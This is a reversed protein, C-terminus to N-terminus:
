ANMVSQPERDTLECALFFNAQHLEQILENFTLGNVCFHQIQTLVALKTIMEEFFDNEKESIKFYRIFQSLTLIHMTKRTNNKNEQANLALKNDSNDDSEMSSHYSEDLNMTLNGSFMKFIEWLQNYVNGDEDLTELIRRSDTLADRVIELYNQPDEWNEDDSEQDDASSLEVGKLREKSKKHNKPQHKVDQYVLDEEMLEFFKRYNGAPSLDTSLFDAIVKLKDAQRKTLGARLRKVAFTQGATKFEVVRKIYENQVFGEPTLELLNKIEPIETDIVIAMRSWQKIDGPDDINQKLRLHKQFAYHTQTNLRTYGDM